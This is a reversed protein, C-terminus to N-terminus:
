VITNSEDLYYTTNIEPTGTFTGGTYAFMDSLARLGELGDGTEPIRFAKTYTGTKTKSVKIKSCNYFMNSYCGQPLTTAILRPIAILSSCRYFMGDYCDTALTTAPLVPPYKLTCGYFMEQYCRSSLVTAPLSPPSVLHYDREFMHGFCNNGMTPHEGKQVLNWDLLKEINGNCEIDVGSLFWRYGSSVITNKAGRIYIRHKGNLKNSQLDSGNWVQWGDPNNCFEMTGNWTKANGDLTIRFSSTSAFELATDLDDPWAARRRMRPYNVIM